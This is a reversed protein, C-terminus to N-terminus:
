VKKKYIQQIRESLLEILSYIINFQKKINLVLMKVIGLINVSSKLRRKPYVITTRTSFRFELVLFTKKWYLYLFFRVDNLLLKKTKGGPQFLCLVVTLLVWSSGTKLAWLKLKCLCYAFLIDEARRWMVPQQMKHMACRGPMCITQSPLEIQKIYLNRNIIRNGIDGKSEMFHWCSKIKIICVYFTLFIFFTSSPLIFLRFCSFNHINSQICCM